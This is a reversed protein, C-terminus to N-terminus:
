ILNQKWVVYMCVYMCDYRIQRGTPIFYLSPSPLLRHPMRRGAELSSEGGGCACRLQSHCGGVSVGANVRLMCVCMYMKVHMCVYMYICM